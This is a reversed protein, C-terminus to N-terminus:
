RRQLGRQLGGVLAYFIGGGSIAVSLWFILQTFIALTM